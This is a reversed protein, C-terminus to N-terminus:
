LRLGRAPHTSPNEPPFPSRWSDIHTHVRDAGKGEATCGLPTDFASTLCLLTKANMTVDDAHGAVGRTHPCGGGM